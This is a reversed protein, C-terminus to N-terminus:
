VGKPPEPLPMWWDAKFTEDDDAVWFHGLTESIYHAIVVELGNWVLVRDCSKLYMAEEDIDMYRIVQMEPLRNEISIWKNEEIM